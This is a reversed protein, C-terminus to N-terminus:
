GIHKLIHRMTLDLVEATKKGLFHNEKELLHLSSHPYERHYRESYSYPVVTDETGHILCVQGDYSCSRGYIDLKQAVEFYPRGVKRILFVRVYEPIHNPDFKANMIHGELADQHLVAAAALQVIAPIAKGGLEGALMGTVVGGQSHGVLVINRVWDWARVMKYINRADQLENEVTMDCFRGESRGHGNFDFTLVAIGKECLNATLKKFLSYRQNAMFGHMLIALHSPAESPRFLTAALMGHDGQCTWKTKIMM